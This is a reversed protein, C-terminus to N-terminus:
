LYSICLLHGSPHPRGRSIYGPPTLQLGRILGVQFLLQSADYLNTPPWWAFSTESPPLGLGAPRVHPAPRGWKDAEPSGSRERTKEHGRSDEWWNECFKSKVQNPKKVGVGEQSIRNKDKFIWLECFSHFNHHQDRFSKSPSPEPNKKFRKLRIWRPSERRFEL